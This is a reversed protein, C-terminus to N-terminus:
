PKRYGPSYRGQSGHNNQKQYVYYCFFMTVSLAILIALSGIVIGAIEGPNYQGRKEGQRSIFSDFAGAGQGLAQSILGFVLLTVFEKM